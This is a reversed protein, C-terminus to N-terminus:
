MRKCLFFRTGSPKITEGQSVEFTRGVEGHREQRGRACLCGHLGRHRAKYNVMVNRKWREAFDAFGIVKQACYSVSNIRSLRIDLERRALRQSPFEKKTGIVESKHQRTVKGNIDVV